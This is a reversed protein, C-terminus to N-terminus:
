LACLEPRDIPLKEDVPNLDRQVEPLVEKYTGTHAQDLRTFILAGPVPPGEREGVGDKQIVKGLKIVTSAVQSHPSELEM